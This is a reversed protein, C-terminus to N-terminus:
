RYARESLARMGLGVMVEHAIRRRMPNHLRIATSGLFDTEIHDFAKLEPSTM